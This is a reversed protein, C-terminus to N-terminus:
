SAITLIPLTVFTTFPPLLNLNVAKTTTPSLFPVIPNPVPLALSTGSAILFATSSANLFM